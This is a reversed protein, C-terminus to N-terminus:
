AQALNEAPIEMTAPNHLWILAKRATQSGSARWQPFRL